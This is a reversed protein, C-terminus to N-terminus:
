CYSCEEAVKKLEERDTVQSLPLDILARIDISIKVFLNYYGIETATINLTNSASIDLANYDNTKVEVIRFYHKKDHYILSYTQEPHILDRSTFEIMFSNRGSKSIVKNVKNYM